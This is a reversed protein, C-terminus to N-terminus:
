TQVFVQNHATSPQARPHLNCWLKSVCGCGTMIGKYAVAVPVGLAHSACLASAVILITYVQWMQKNEWIGAASDSLSQTSWDTLM